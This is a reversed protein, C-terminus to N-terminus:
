SFNHCFNDLLSNYERFFFFKVCILSIIRSLALSPSNVTIVFVLTLVLISQKSCQFYKSEILLLIILTHFKDNNILKSKGRLLTPHKEKNGVVPQPKVVDKIQHNYRRRKSNLIDM